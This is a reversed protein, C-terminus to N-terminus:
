KNRIKEKHKTIQSKLADICLDTAAEFTKSQKTAFLDNGPIEIRIEVAKNETAQDNIVKLFVECGVIGDYLKEIKILKSEIFTLLKQDADFHISQIKINM